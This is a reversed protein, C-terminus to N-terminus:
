RQDRSERIAKIIEEDPIKELLTKMEVIADTLEQKERKKIEEELAQRTIKSVSLKYKKIKGKLTKDVRVTLIESM